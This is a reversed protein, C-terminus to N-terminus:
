RPSGWGTPHLSALVLSEGVYSGLLDVTCGMPQQLLDVTGGMPQQVLDGTHSMSLRCLLLETHRSQPRYTTAGVRESANRQLFM